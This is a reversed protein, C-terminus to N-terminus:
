SAVTSSRWSDAFGRWYTQDWRALYAAFEADESSVRGLRRGFGAWRAALRRQTSRRRRHLRHGITWAVEASHRRYLVATGRGYSYAQRLLDEDSERDQHFCLAAERFVIESGFRQRILYSFEVDEGFTLEEPWGGVAEAASRRVAMNRTNAFPLPANNLARTADNLGYRAAFRQAGTRPPFSALGGAVIVVSQDAFPEVLARLWGRSPVCDADLLAVVEGRAAALGRNRAASPGRKPELLASLNPLGSREVLERSADTSGNDVFLFETPGLSNPLQARLASLLAPLTASANFVPVVVSVSVAADV